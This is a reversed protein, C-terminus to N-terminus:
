SAPPQLVSFWAGESDQVVAFSGSPITKPPVHISGGLEEIRACAAAIDAVQFYVSWNAPVDKQQQAELKLLGANPRGDNLLVEYPKEDGVDDGVTWQFVEAYFRKAGDIDQTMLENWTFTNDENCLQSGLHTGAQWVSFRAGAPDAYIAMHGAGFIEMEPMTVTGGAAEIKVSTDAVSEVSIYSNWVAPMGGKKMEDTMGGMGAVDKGGKRFQTYVYGGKPDHQDEPEWGFLGVYFAKATEVDKAMLDVWSFQGPAYKSMQM